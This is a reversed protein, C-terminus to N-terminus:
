YRQHKKLYLKNLPKSIKQCGTSITRLYQVYLVLLIIKLINTADFRHFLGTEVLNINDPYQAAKYFFCATLMEFVTINQNDNINEVKEFLDALEDDNLEQNNFVFDKMSRKFIHVQIFTVNLIQKKLFQMVHKSQLIKVM